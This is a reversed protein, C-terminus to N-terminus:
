LAVVVVVSSSTVTAATCVPNSSLERPVIGTSSMEDQFDVCMCTYIIM